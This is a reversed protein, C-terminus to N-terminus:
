RVGGITTVKGGIHSTANTYVNEDAISECTVSVGRSREPTTVKLRVKSFGATVKLRVKLLRHNGQIM